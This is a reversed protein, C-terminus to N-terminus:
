ETMFCNSLNQVDFDAKKAWGLPKGEPIEPASEASGKIYYYKGSIATVFFDSMNTTQGIVKATPSPADLLVIPHNIVVTDKVTHNKAVVCGRNNPDDPPPPAAFTSSAFISVSLLGVILLLNTKM